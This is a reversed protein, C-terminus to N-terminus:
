VAMCYAISLKLKYYEKATNLFENKKLYLYLESASTKWTKGDFKDTM